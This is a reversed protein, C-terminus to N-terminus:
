NEVIKKLKAIERKLEIGKEIRPKSARNFDAEMMKLLKRLIFFETLGVIAGILFGILTGIGASIAITVIAIAFLLIVAVWYIASKINNTAELLKTHKEELDDIQNNLRQIKLEAATKDVLNQVRDIKDSLFKLAVIGGTRQVIQSAGCYQCAFEFINETIKLNAGCNLCKLNVFSVTEIM